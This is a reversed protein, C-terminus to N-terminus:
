PKENFFSTWLKPKYIILFAKEVSILILLLGVHDQNIEM